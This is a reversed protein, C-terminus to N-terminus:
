EVFEKLSTIVQHFKEHRKSGDVTIFKEYTVMLVTSMDMTWDRSLLLSISKFRMERTDYKKHFHIENVHGEPDILATSVCKRVWKLHAGKPDPVKRLICVTYSGDEHYFIQGLSIHKLRRSLDLIQTLDM